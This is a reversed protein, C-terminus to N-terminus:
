QSLIALENWNPTLADFVRNSDAVIPSKERLDRMKIQTTRPRNKSSSAPPLSSLAGTRQGPKIELTEQLIPM